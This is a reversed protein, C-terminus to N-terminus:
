GIRKNEGSTGSAANTQRELGGTLRQAVLTTGSLVTVAAPETTALKEHAPHAGDDMDVREIQVVTRQVGHLLFLSRHSANESLGLKAILSIHAAM